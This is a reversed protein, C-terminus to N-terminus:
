SPFILWPVPLLDLRLFDHFKAPSFSHFGHISITSHSYCAQQPKSPWHNHLWLKYQHTLFYIGYNPQWLISHAFASFFLVKWSQIPLNQQKLLIGTQTDQSCCVLFALQRQCVRAVSAKRFTQVTQTLATPNYGAYSAQRDIAQRHKGVLTRYLLQTQLIRRTPSVWRKFSGHGQFRPWPDSLTMSLSVM